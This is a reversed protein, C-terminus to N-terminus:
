VQHMNKRMEPAKQVKYYEKRDQSPWGSRGEAEREENQLRVWEEEERQFAKEGPVQVASRWFRVTSGEEIQNVHNKLSGATKRPERSYKM